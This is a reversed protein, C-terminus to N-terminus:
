RTGAGRDMRVGLGLARRGSLGPHPCRDALAAPRGDRRRWFVIPEGCIWRQLPQAGIEGAWACVYWANKLLKGNDGDMAATTEAREALGAERRPRPPMM